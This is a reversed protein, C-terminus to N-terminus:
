PEENPNLLFAAWGTLNNVCYQMAQLRPHNVHHGREAMLVAWADRRLRPQDAVLEPSHVVAVADAHAQATPRPILPILPRPMPDQM